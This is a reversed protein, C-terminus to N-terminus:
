RREYVDLLYDGTGGLTVPRLWRQDALAAHVAAADLPREPGAPRWHVAVLRAEPAMAERLAALTDTLTARDLYYLIESAVVLDYPGPPIDGPIEGRIIETQPHGAVRKRASEVATPAGDITVLRRCRPALLESFVGISAGLELANTFLGRDAARCAVLTAAYKDREYPSRTYNWPDPDERYRSEFDVSM